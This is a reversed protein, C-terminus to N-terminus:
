SRRRSFPRREVIRQRFVPKYSGRPIEMVLTEAVGDSAFYDDIRKRLESANVRVINDLSTDYNAQRGFVKAGIEQEHIQDLGDKISRQGVFFLFERLRAARRLQPSAVVRELLAWCVESHPKEEQISAPDTVPKNM